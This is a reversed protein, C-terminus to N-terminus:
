LVLVEVPQEDWECDEDYDDPEWYSGAWHQFGWKVKRVAGDNFRVHADIDLKSGNMRQESQVALVGVLEVAQLPSEEMELSERLTYRIAEWANAPDMFFLRERQEDADCEAGIESFTEIMLEGGSRGKGEREAEAAFFEATTIVTVGTMPDKRPM